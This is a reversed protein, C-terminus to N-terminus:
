SVAVLFMASVFVTSITAPLFKVTLCVLSVAPALTSNANAFSRLSRVLTVVSFTVVLSIPKCSAAPLVVVILFSPSRMVYVLSPPVVTFLTALRASSFCMVAVVAPLSYVTSASPLTVIVYVSPLPLKTFPSFATILPTALFSRELM